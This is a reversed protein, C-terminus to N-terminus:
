NPTNPKVTQDVTLEASVMKKNPQTTPLVPGGAGTPAVGAARDAAEKALRERETVVRLKTVGAALQAVDWIYEVMSAQVPSLAGLDEDEGPPATNVRITQVITNSDIPSMRAVIGVVTQRTSGFAKHFATTLDSPNTFGVFDMVEGLAGMNALQAETPEM